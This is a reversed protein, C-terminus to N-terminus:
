YSSATNKEIEYEGKANQTLRFYTLTLNSSSPLQTLDITYFCHETELQDASMKSPNEDNGDHYLFLKLVNDNGNEYRCLIRHNYTTGKAKYIDFLLDLRYPTLRNTTFAVPDGPVEEEPDFPSVELLVMPNIEKLRINLDRDLIDCLIYNRSGEAFSTVNTSNEKVTFSAGSDNIFKGQYVTIIDPYNEAYYTDEKICSLLFAPFLALLLLLKKMPIM